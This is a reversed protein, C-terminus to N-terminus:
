PHHEAYGRLEGPRRSSYQDEAKVLRAPNNVMIPWRRGQKITRASRQKAGLKGTQNGIPQLRLQEPLAQTFYASPTIHGSHDPDPRGL